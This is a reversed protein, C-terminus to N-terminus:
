AISCCNARLPLSRPNEPCLIGSDRHAACSIPDPLWCVATFARRQDPDCTIMVEPLREQIKGVLSTRNNSMNILGQTQICYYGPPDLESRLFCLSRTAPLFVGTNGTCLFVEIKFTSACGSKLALISCGLIFSSSCYRSARTTAALALARRSWRISVYQPKWGGGGFHVGHAEPKM